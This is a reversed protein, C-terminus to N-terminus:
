TMEVENPDAIKLGGEEVPVTYVFFRVMNPRQDDHTVRLMQGKRTRGAFLQYFVEDGVDNVFDTPPITTVEVMYGGGPTKLMRKRMKRFPKSEEFWETTALYYWIPEYPVGKLDVIYM